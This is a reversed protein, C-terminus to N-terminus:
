KKQLGKIQVRMVPEEKRANLFFQCQIVWPLFKFFHKEKQVESFTLVTKLSNSGADNSLCSNMPSAMLYSRIGMVELSNLM